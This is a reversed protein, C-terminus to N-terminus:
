YQFGLATGLHRLQENGSAALHYTALRWLTGAILVALFTSATAMVSFHTHM